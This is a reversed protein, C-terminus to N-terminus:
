VDNKEGAPFGAAVLAAVTKSRGEAAAVHLGQTLQTLGKHRFEIVECISTKYNADQNFRRM